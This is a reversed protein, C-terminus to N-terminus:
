CCVISTIVKYKGVHYGMKKLIRRCIDSECDVFPPRFYTPIFGLINRLAMEMYQVQNVM